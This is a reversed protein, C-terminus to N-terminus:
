TSEEKSGSRSDGGGEKWLWLADIAYNRVSLNKTMSEDAAETLSEIVQHSKCLDWFMTYIRSVIADAGGMEQYTEADVEPVLQDYNRKGLKYLIRGLTRIAICRQSPFTSRSLHQLEGITYGALEPDESHHHLGNRTSEIKRNPPVLNGKFDFRCQAVDQIVDNASAKPVPKMWALKDAEKPLDPFYKEHLKNDFEPDHIDLSEFDEQADKVPRMFHVDNLLEENKMHDMQQVFQYEQPAIDDEDASPRAFDLPESQTPEQIDADGEFKVHKSPKPQIGLAENVKEDDLHPLDAIERSGGIWTGPAGEVEAFLPATNPKIYDKLPDSKQGSDQKSLRKMLSQIVKPDLSELIDRKEQALQDASMQQMRAVNERHIEEAVTEPETKLKSEAAPPKGGNVQSTKSTTKAGSRQRKQYLRTKWSSIKEPEYLAPFGTAPAADVSSPATADKEVIDGLLDM